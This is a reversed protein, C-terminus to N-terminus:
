NNLVKWSSAAVFRRPFAESACESRHRSVPISRNAACAISGLGSSEFSAAPPRLHRRTLAGTREPRALYALRQSQGVETEPKEAM